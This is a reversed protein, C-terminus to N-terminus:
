VGKERKMLSLVSNESWFVTEVEIKRRCPSVRTKEPDDLTSAVVCVRLGRRTCECAEIFRWDVVGVSCREGKTGFSTGLGRCEFNDNELRRFVLIKSYVPLQASTKLPRHGHLQEHCAQWRIPGSKIPRRSWQQDHWTTM